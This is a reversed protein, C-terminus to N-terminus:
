ELVTVNQTYFSGAYHEDLSTFVVNVNADGTTKITWKYERWDEVGNLDILVPFFDLLDSRGNVKDDAYDRNNGDAAPTNHGVSNTDGANEGAETGEADDDDNLWITFVSGIASTEYDYLDIVGDRNFDPLLKPGSSLGAFATIATLPLMGAIM